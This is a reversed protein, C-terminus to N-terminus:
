QKPEAVKQWNTRSRYPGGIYKYGDVIQGPKLKVPDPFVTPLLRHKNDEFYKGYDTTGELHAHLQILTNLGDAAKDLDKKRDYQRMLEAGSAKNKNEFVVGSGSFRINIEDMITAKGDPNTDGNPLTQELKSLVAESVAGDYTMQFVNKANQLTNRDLKGEKALKGFESSAYLSALNKLVKPDNAKGAEATESLIQNGINIAELTSQERKEPPIKGSTLNRLSKQYLDLNVKEGAHGVLPKAGQGTGAQALNAISDEVSGGSDLFAKLTPSNTLTILGTDKFLETAVVAKRMKPDAVIALKSKYMLSQYENKLLEVENASKVKPDLLKQTVADMDNILREWPAALEPNKGAVSLLGVRVRNINAQHRMVKEEYPMNVDNILALGTKYLADVNKDVVGLVGQLAQEKYIRDEVSYMHTQQARGEANQAREEANVMSQRKFNDEFRRAANFADIVANEAEEGMGGWTVYGVATAASLTDNRRKLEAEEQSLAQGIETYGKMAKDAEELDKILGPNSAYFQMTVARSRAGAEHSKLQGSTIGDNILSKQRIFEGLIANKQKEAEEKANQKLGKAFVDTIGNLLEGPFINVAREQVPAIPSTGAGQPASLETAAIGFEAM